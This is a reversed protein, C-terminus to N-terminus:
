AIETNHQPPSDQQDLVGLHYSTSEFNLRLLYFTLPYRGEISTEMQNHTQLDIFHETSSSHFEINHIKGLAYLLCLNENLFL